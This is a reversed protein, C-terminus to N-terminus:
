CITRAARAFSRSVGESSRASRGRSTGPVNSVTASSLREDLLSISRMLAYLRILSSLWNKLYSTADRTM